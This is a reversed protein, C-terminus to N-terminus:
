VFRGFRRGSKSTVAAFVALKALHPTEATGGSALISAFEFHQDSDMKCASCRFFEGYCRIRVAGAIEIGCPHVVLQFPALRLFCLWAM